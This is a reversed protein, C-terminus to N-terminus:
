GTQEDGRRPPNNIRIVGPAPAPAPPSPSNGVRIPSQRGTPPAVRIPETPGSAPPPGLLRVGGTDPPATPVPNPPPVLLAKLAAGFEAASPYRHAPDTATARLLAARSLVPIQDPTASVGFVGTVAYILAAGLSFVDARPDTHALNAQVEPAAFHARQLRFPATAGPASGLPRALGFDILVPEGDPRLLVNRPSIDGHVHRHDGHLVALAGSLRVGMEIVRREPFAGQARVVTYWSVPAHPLDAPWDPPDFGAPGPVYELALWPGAPGTGQRLGRVLNPHDLELALEAERDFQARVFSHTRYAAGPRKLAVWEGPRAARSAISVDGMGGSELARRPVYEDPAHGALAPPADATGFPDRVPALAPTAGSTPPPSGAGPGGEVPDIATHPLEAPDPLAPVPTM